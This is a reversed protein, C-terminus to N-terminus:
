RDQAMAPLRLVRRAAERVEDSSLAAMQRCPRTRCRDWACERTCADDRGFVVTAQSYHGAHEPRRARFLGILPTGLAGALHFPGSDTSVVLAAEALVAVLGSVSLAGRADIVASRIEAPLPLRTDAGGVLVTRLGQRALEEALESLRDIPWWQRRTSGFPHVAAFPRTQELGLESLRSRAAARRSASVSLRPAIPPVEFGLVRIANLRENPGWTRPSGIDYCRTLCPALVHGCVGVRVPIDAKAMMLGFQDGLVLLAVDFRQGAVWHQVRSVEGRHTLTFPDATTEMRVDLDPCEKLLECNSPGGLLALQARPWVRRTATIVPTSMVTDGLLGAIVLLVREPNKLARTARASDPSGRRLRWLQAALYQRTSHQYSYLSRM